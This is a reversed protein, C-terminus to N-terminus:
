CSSYKGLMSRCNPCRHTYDCCCLSKGRCSQICMFCCYGVALCLCCAGCNFECETDTTISSRCFSCTIPIPSTGFEYGGGIVTPSSQNVVVPRNQYTIIRTESNLTQYNSQTQLSRNRIENNIRELPTFYNNNLWSLKCAMIELVKISRGGILVQQNIHVGIREDTIKYFENASNNPLLNENIVFIKADIFLKPNLLIALQIVAKKEDNNLNYYHEYDTLKNSRDYEIVTFVCDLYYMLKAINDNPVTTTKGTAEVRIQNVGLTASM